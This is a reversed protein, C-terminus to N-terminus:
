GDVHRPSVVCLAGKPPFAVRLAAMGHVDHLLLLTHGRRRGKGHVAILEVDMRGDDVM